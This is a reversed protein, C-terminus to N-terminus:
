NGAPLDAAVDRDIAVQGAVFVEVPLCHARNLEDSRFQLFCSEFDLRSLVRMITRLNSSDDKRGGSSGCADPRSVLGNPGVHAAQKADVKPVELTFAATNPTSPAKFPTPIASYGIRVGTRPYASCSGSSHHRAVAM